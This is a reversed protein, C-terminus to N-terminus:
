VEANTRIKDLRKNLEAIRNNLERKTKNAKNLEILANIISTNVSDQKATIPRFWFANIKKMFKGIANSAAVDTISNSEFYKLYSNVDEGFIPTEEFSPVNISLSNSKKYEEFRNNIIQTPNFEM